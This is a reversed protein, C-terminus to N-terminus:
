HVDSICSVIFPTGSQRNKLFIIAQILMHFLLTMALPAQLDASSRGDERFMM